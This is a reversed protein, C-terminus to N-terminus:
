SRCLIRCTARCSRGQAWWMSVVDVIVDVPDVTSGVMFISLPVGFSRCKISRKLGGYSRDLISMELEVHLDGYLGMAHRRTIPSTILEVVSQRIIVLPSVLIPAPWGLGGCITLSLSTNQHHTCDFVFSALLM